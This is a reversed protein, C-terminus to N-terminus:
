YELSKIFLIGDTKDEYYAPLMRVKCYGMKKYMRIATDNDVRVELRIRRCGHLRAEREARMVLRTGIGASRADSRVALSYIRAIYSGKRFLLVLSGIVKGQQYAGYSSASESCLLRQLNRRSIRDSSFCAYELDLLDNFRGLGVRRIQIHTQKETKM